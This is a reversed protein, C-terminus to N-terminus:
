FDETGAAKGRQKGPEFDHIAGLGNALALVNIKSARWADEAERWARAKAVIVARPEADALLHRWSAFAEMERHSLARWRLGAAEVVERCFDEFNVLCVSAPVEGSLDRETPIEPPPHHTTPRPSENAVREHTAQTDSLSENAARKGWRKHNTIRAGLSKRAIRERQKERERELRANRRKGDEGVPFKELLQPTVGKGGLRRLAAADDPLGDGLWQHCLLRLYALQESDSFLAVGALWREPYFDFAPADKAM